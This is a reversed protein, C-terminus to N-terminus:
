GADPQGLMIALLTAWDSIAEIDASTDNSDALRVIRSM